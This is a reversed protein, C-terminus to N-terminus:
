DSELGTVTTKDCKRINPIIRAKLEFLHSKISTTIMDGLLEVFSVIAWANPSKKEDDGFPIVSSTM